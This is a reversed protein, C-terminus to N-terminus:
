FGSSSPMESAGPQNGTMKKLERTAEGEPDLEISDIQLGGEVLTAQGNFNVKTGMELNDLDPYEGPQTPIIKGDPM